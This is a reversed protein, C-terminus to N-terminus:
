RKVGTGSLNVSIGSGTHDSIRLQCSKPGVTRPRFSVQMLCSGGPPLVAWCGTNQVTFEFCGISSVSISAANPGLNGVQLSRTGGLLSGVQVQGFNIWSPSAQLAAEASMAALSLTIFSAFLRFM